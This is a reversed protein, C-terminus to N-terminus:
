AVLPNVSTTLIYDGTKLLINTTYEPTLTLETNGYMILEGDVNYQVLESEFYFENARSWDLSNDVNIADSPVYWIKAGHCTNYEGTECYNYEDTNADSNYPLNKNVNNIVIANAPENFRDSKDKYYVVEYGELPSEVVVDFSNGIAVYEINIKKAEEPIKWVNANFDVTKETLKTTAWYSVDIGEEKTVDVDVAVEVDGNNFITFPTGDISTGSMLNGEFILEGSVSIPNTNHLTSQNEFYNSILGASVVAIVFLGLLGFTLVKKNM